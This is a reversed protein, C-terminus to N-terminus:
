DQGAHKSWYYLFMAYNAIHLLKRRYQEDEMALAFVDEANEWLITEFHEQEKSDNWGKLGEDVKEYLIQKQKENFEKLADRLKIKEPNINPM